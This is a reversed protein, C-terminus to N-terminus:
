QKLLKITDDFSNNIDEYKNLKNKINELKALLVNKKLEKDKKVLKLLKENYKQLEVYQLGLTENEAFDDTEPKIEIIEDIIMEIEDIIDQYKEDLSEDIYLINEIYYKMDSDVGYGMNINKIMNEISSKMQLKKKNDRTKNLRDIFEEFLNIYENYYSEDLDGINNLYNLACEVTYYYLDIVKDINSETLEYNYLKTIVIGYSPLNYYEPPSVYNKIENKLKNISM